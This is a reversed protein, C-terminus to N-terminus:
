YRGKGKKRTNRKQEKKVIGRTDGCGGRKELSYIINVGKGPALGTGRDGNKKVLRM